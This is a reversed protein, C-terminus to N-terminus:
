KLKEWINIKTESRVLLNAKGISSCKAFVIKHLDTLNLTNAVDEFDNLRKDVNEPIFKISDNNEAVRNVSNSNSVNLM